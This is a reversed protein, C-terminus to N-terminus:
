KKRACEFLDGEVEDPFITYIDDEIDYKDKFQTIVDSISQRNGKGLSNYYIVHAATAKLAVIFKNRGYDKYISGLFYITSYENMTRTHSAGNM